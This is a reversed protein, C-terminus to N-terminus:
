LSGLIDERFADRVQQHMGRLQEVIPAQKSEEANTLSEALTSLENFLDDHRRDALLDARALADFLAGADEKVRESAQDGRMVRRLRYLCEHYDHRRQTRIFHRRSARATYAATVLTTLLGIAGGIVISLLIATKDV